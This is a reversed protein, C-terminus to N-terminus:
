YNKNKETLIEMSLKYYDTVSAVENIRLCTIGKEREPMPSGFREGKRLFTLRPTPSNCCFSQSFDLSSKITRSDYDVFFFGNWFLLDDEKCFSYNKLYVDKLTDEQRALAYSIKMGWKAGDKFYNEMAKLSSDSVIRLDTVGMLSVLDLGYELLPKNVIKLLYPDVDPFCERLWSLEPNNAYILCRM